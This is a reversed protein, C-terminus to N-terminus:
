AFLRAINDIEVVVTEGDITGQAAVLAVQFKQPNHIQLYRGEARALYRDSVPRHGGFYRAEGWVDEPLYHEIMKRVSAKEAEDNDTWTLGVVVAPRSHYNLVSETDYFKKPEAHSVLFNGGIALLPLSKEYNYYARLFDEGYFRKVYDLVMAGEYAYKRFPFNGGGNENSINEHNGKLFHFHLPFTKKMEMVMEMVGLSERMEDDMHRHKEYGTQFEALAHQWRAARRGEAHFADGVCVVQLERLSLSELVTKGGVLPSLMTSLFFDLRAHLDPIIVTPIDPFLCLIGGPRGAADRPRVREDENELVQELLDLLKVYSVSSPPQTRKFIDKLRKFPAATAAGSALLQVSGKMTDDM